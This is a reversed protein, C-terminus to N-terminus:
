RWCFAPADGPGSRPGRPRPAPVPVSMRGAAHPGRGRPARRGHRDLRLRVALTAPGGTEVVAEIHGASRSAEILTRQVRGALAGRRRDGALGAAGEDRVGGGGAARARRGCRAKWSSTPTSSAPCASSGGRGAERLRPLIRDLDRCSADEPSLVRQESM